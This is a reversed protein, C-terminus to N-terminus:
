KVQEFIHGVKFKAVAKANRREAPMAPFEAGVFDLATGDPISDIDSSNDVMQRIFDFTIGINKAAIEKMTM